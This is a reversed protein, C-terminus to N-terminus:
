RVMVLQRAVTQGAAVLHVFYMGPAVRVGRATGDWAVTYPGAAQEGDVLTTVRRGAVDAVTLRVAGARALAFQIQTAGYSPNPAVGTIASAAVLGAARASIPGFTTAPGDRLTAVLRYFHERGPEATEDLAVFTGMEERVAVPLPAWPGVNAPARELAVAAVREPAGFRWRLEIGREVRTAEFQALLAATTILDFRAVISRYRDMTVTLPNETGEADGSWGVFAYDPAPVATLTVLQGGYCGRNPSRVVAGRGPADVALDLTNGQSVGMRWTDGLAGQSPNYGGFMLVQERVPDFVFGAASRAVPPTGFYPSLNAWAPEHSLSLAWMDDPFSLGNQGGYVILRDRAADYAVSAQSRALPPGGAPHLERWAPTSGLDLTWLDNLSPGTLGAGGFVLMRDRPVDYIAAHGHRVPPAGPLDLPRWVASGTSFELEWLPHTETEPALGGFLLFRDRPADHVLSAAFRPAPSATM